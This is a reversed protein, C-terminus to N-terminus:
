LIYITSKDIGTQLGGVDADDNDEIGIEELGSDTNLYYDADYYYIDIEAGSTPQPNIGSEVQISITTDIQENSITGKHAFCWTKEDVNGVAHLGPCTTETFDNIAFEKYVTDNAEVVLVMDGYPSFADEYTGTLRYNLSVSDGANLTENDTASNSNGNDDNLIRRTMNNADNQYLKYANSDPAAGSTVAGQCPVTFKQKAAYHTSSNEGYIIEVEDKPNVTVTSGDLYLGKDVANLFLRHYTTTLKTTPNFAEQSPGITLTTDEIYCKDTVSPTGPTVPEAGGFWGKVTDGLGGLNLVLVLAVGIALIPLIGMKDGKKNM